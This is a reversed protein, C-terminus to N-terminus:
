GNEIRNNSVDIYEQQMEFGIYDRDLGKCALGTTGVGM